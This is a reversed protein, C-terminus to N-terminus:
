LDIALKQNRVYRSSFLTKLCAQSGAEQKRGTRWRLIPRPVVM